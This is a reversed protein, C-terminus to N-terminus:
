KLAAAVPGEGGGSALSKTSSSGTHVYLNITDDGMMRVAIVDEPFFGKSDLVAVLVDNNAITPRLYAANGNSSLLESGQCFETVWVRYSDDVGQVQAPYVRKMYGLQDGCNDVNTNYGCRVRCNSQALAPVVVTAAITTVAFAALVLKNM